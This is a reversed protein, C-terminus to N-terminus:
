ARHRENGPENSGETHQAKNESQQQLLDHAEALAEQLNGLDEVNMFTNM